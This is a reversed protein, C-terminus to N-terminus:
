IWGQRQFAVRLQDGIEKATRKATGEITTRGSLEGEAKAASSVILGTPNGTAAVM